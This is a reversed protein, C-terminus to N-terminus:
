NEAHVQLQQWISERTCNGYEASQSAATTKSVVPGRRLVGLNRGFKINGIIVCKAINIIKCPREAEMFNLYAM